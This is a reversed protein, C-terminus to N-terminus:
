WKVTTLVPFHDSALPEDKPGHDIRSSTVELESSVFIYDIMGGAADRKWNNFTLRNQLTPNAVALSNALALDGEKELIKVVAPNSEGANLDGMLVLAEKDTKQGLIHSKILAAAKMRSEQGKHDWHTNYIFIQRKTKKETFKGWTCMRTVENDWTISGARDPTDSLWFDGSNKRDTEFRDKRYFIACFEGGGRGDDRGGGIFSYDKLARRLDKVQSEVAEQIGLFDPAFEEIQAIVRDKREDWERDGTDESALYRVNYTMLKLEDAALNGAFAFLFLLSFLSRKAM